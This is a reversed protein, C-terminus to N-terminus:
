NSQFKVHDIVGFINAKQVSYPPLFSLYHCQRYINNIWNNLNATSYLQFNRRNKEEREINRETTLVLTTFWERKNSRHKQRKVLFAKKNEKNFSGMKTPITKLMQISHITPRRGLVFLNFRSATPTSSSLIFATFTLLM